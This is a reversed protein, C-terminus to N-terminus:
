RLRRYLELLKARWLDARTPDDPHDLVDAVAANIEDRARAAREEDAREAAQRVADLYLWDTLADRFTEWRRSTVIEGEGPYIMGGDWSRGDWTIENGGYMWIGFGDCQYNWIKWGLM